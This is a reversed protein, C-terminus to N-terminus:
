RCRAPRATSCAGPGSRSSGLPQLANLSDETPGWARHRGRAEGHRPITFDTEDSVFYPENDAIILGPHRRLAALMMGAFRRDRNYLIAAHMERGAGKYSNTMSHQAVLITRRGAAKRRDLLARIREHYPEFIEVRRASREEESM